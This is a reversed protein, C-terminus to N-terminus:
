NEPLRKLDVKNYKFQLMCIIQVNSNFSAQCTQLVTLTRKVSKHAQQMIKHLYLAVCQRERKAFGTVMSIARFHTYQTQVFVHLPFYSM